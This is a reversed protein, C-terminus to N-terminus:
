SFYQKETQSNKYKLGYEPKTVEKKYVSIVKDMRRIVSEIITYFEKDAM